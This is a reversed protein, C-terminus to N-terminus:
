HEAAMRPGGHSPKPTKGQARDIRAQTKRDAVWRLAMGAISLLAGAAVMAIVWLEGKAGKLAPVALLFVSVISILYGQGKLAHPDKMM